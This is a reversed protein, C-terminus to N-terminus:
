ADSHGYGNRDTNGNANAYSVSETRLIQRWYEFRQRWRVGGWVIMESGTWVATHAARASPANTTRTAIWSDTDPGTGAGGTNFQGQVIPRTAGWVIM